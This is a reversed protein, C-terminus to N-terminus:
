IISETADDEITPAENTAVTETFREEASSGMEEMELGSPMRDVTAEDDGLLHRLHAVLNDVFRDLYDEYGTVSVAPANPPLRYWIFESNRRWQYRAYTGPAPQLMRTAIIKPVEYNFAPNLHYLAADVLWDGALCIVHGNWKESNGYNVVGGVTERRGPASTHLSSCWLRCPLVRTRIGFRHLVTSLIHTAFVSHVQLAAPLVAYYEAVVLRLIQSNETGLSNLKM